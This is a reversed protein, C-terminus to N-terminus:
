FREISSFWQKRQIKLDKQHAWAKDHIVFNHPVDKPNHQFNILCIRSIDVMKLKHDTSANKRKM